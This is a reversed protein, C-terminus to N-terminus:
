NKLCINDDKAILDFTHNPEYDNILILDTIFDEIYNQIIRLIPRAGYQKEKKAQEFVFNVVDEGYSIDFSLANLRKRLKEIELKVISKLNDDTLSNFYVIKDIRNIFEPTFTGKLEKEIISRKNEDENSVFGVGKGFESAKKAGVNSTMLVIVNKFNVVQGSSDTLRGEDFLQLFLNHVERDAKEIEDLLLVCHQKNKVAETLQGGNEYGVYSPAAGTLKSVSHRESYESMDLRILCSEDGFIEAALKKAILTKGTGTKGALLINALTKNKDGLGVRNRKIVRCISDIAEDQGIVSQKLVSDINALKVKENTTLKQTPINTMESIAKAIDDVTIEIKYKEKNGEYERKYEAVMKKLNNLEKTIKDSNEFDGEKIFRANEREIENIKKKIELIENPERKIFCTNAGSLDIVDIASDPLSKETIYRESMEVAKKVVEDSYSVNHFEEYYKKIGNVIKISDEVDSPEVIIKQMKRALSTNSEICNRYDKFGCTGIVRIDGEQLVNGIMSSIDTDKDRGSGHLMNQIDDLFLIYKNSKKLENFVGNVREEFMGRFNTGSVIATIDLMIVKKDKLIEPVNGSEIREALGYVIQTKGCGSKGVLVANNKKRRALTSIIKNLEEDRGVLKDYSGNKVLENINVTYETLYDSKGGIAFTKATNLGKLPIVVEAKKSKKPAEEQPKQPEEEKVACRPALIDYSIGVNSFVEIISNVGYELNLMALLVHETGLKKSGCKNMEKLANDMVFSLGKSYPTVKAQNVYTKNSHSLLYNLYIEKLSEIEDTMIFNDIILYAHCKKNDLMATLIYEETIEKSEFERALVDEMYFIVDNFEQTVNQQQVQKLEM